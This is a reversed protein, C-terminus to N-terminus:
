EIETTQTLNSDRIVNIVVYFIRTSPSHEIVILEFIQVQCTLRKNCAEAKSKNVKENWLNQARTKGSYWACM